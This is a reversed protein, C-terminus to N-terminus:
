SFTSLQTQNPSRKSSTGSATRFWAGHALRLRELSLPSEFSVGPEEVKARYGKAEEEAKKLRRERASTLEDGPEDMSFDAFDMLEDDEPISTDQHLQSM